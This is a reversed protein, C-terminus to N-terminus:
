VGNDCIMCESKKPSPEKTLFCWFFYQFFLFPWNSKASFPTISGFKNLTFFVSQTIEFGLFDWLILLLSCKDSILALIMLEQIVGTGNIETLSHWSMIEVPCFSKIFLNGIQGSFGSMGSKLGFDMKGFSSKEHQIPHVLSFLFYM